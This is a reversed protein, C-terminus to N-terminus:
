ELKSEILYDYTTLLHKISNIRHELLTLDTKETFVAKDDVIKILLTKLSDELKRLVILVFVQKEALTDLKGRVSNYYFLIIRTDRIYHELLDDFNSM